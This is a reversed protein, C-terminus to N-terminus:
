FDADNVTFAHKFIISLICRFRFCYREIMLSIIKADQGPVKRLDNESYFVIKRRGNEKYNQKNIKDSSHFLENNNNLDLEHNKLLDRNKDM